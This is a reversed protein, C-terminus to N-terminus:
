VAKGKPTSDVPTALNPTAPMPAVAALLACGAAGIYEPLQPVVVELGFRDNFLTQLAWSRSVGGSLVLPLGAEREVFPAVLPEIKRFVALNIGALLSELAVGESVKGIVETEAFVACTSSIEAPAGKASALEELSVGLLSVMHELYRGSSAACRDNARFDVMWGRRVLITKADQGGIDLLIFDSLGTLRCAGAMHASLETVTRAGGLRVNNRGYGTAVIRAGPHIDLGELDLVQEGSNRRLFRRYFEFTPYAAYKWNDAPSPVGEEILFSVLKVARSGLDIGLAPGAGSVGAFRGSPQKESGKPRM